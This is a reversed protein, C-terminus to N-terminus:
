LYTPQKWTSTKNELFEIGRTATGWSINYPSISVSTGLIPCSKCLASQEWCNKPYQLIKKSLQLNVQLAAKRPGSIAEARPRGRRGLIWKAQQVTDPTQLRVLAISVRNIETPQCWIRQGEKLQEPLLLINSLPWFWDNFFLWVLGM